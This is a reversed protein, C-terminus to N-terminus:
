NSRRQRRLISSVLMVLVIGILGLLFARQEGTQPLFKSTTSRTAPTTQSTGKTVPLTKEHNYVYPTKRVMASEPVRDNEKEDMIQGNIKVFQANGKIDKSSEPIIVPIDEEMKQYGEVGQVEELYYTGAPLYHNKMEVLGEQNSTYRSINADKAPDSSAMWKNKMGTTPNMDLYLKKGTEDIRYLVFVVGALPEESGDEKKGIKFFYPSRLYSINKPYIHITQMEQNTIPDFVPLLVVLPTTQTLDVSVGADPDVGTEVILYVGHKNLTQNYSPVSFRLVGGDAAETDTRVGKYIPDLNQQQLFEVAYSCNMENMQELFTEKDLGGNHYLTSVDYVDFIAGDLSSTKSLIDADQSAEQGDNQHPTFEPLDADRLVRKHVVVQVDAEAAEGRIATLMSFFPLLLCVLLFLKGLGKRM